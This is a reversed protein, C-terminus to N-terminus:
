PLRMATQPGRRASRPGTALSVTCRTLIDHPGHPTAGYTAPGAVFNYDYTVNTDSYGGTAYGGSRAIMINSSMNVDSSRAAEIEGEKVNLNNNVSVNSIM